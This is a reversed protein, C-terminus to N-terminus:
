PTPALQSPEGAFAEGAEVEPIIEVASGEPAYVLTTTALLEGAEIANQHVIM